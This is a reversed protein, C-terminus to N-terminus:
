GYTRRDFVMIDLNPRCKISVLGGGGPYVILPIINITLAAPATGPPFILISPISVGSSSKIPRIPTRRKPALLSGSSPFDTALVMLSNLFAIRLSGASSLVGGSSFFGFYAGRGGISGLRGRGEWRSSNLRLIM